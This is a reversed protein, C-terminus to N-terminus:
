PQGDSPGSGVIGSGCGSSIFGSSGARGRAWGKSGSGSSRRGGASGSSGSRASPRQASCDLSPQAAGPRASLLACVPAGAGAQRRFVHHAFTHRIDGSHPAVWCSRPIAPLLHTSAELPQSNRSATPSCALFRRDVLSGGPLKGAEPGPGLTLWGGSSLVPVFSHCWDWCLESSEGDLRRRKGCPGDCVPELRVFNRRDACGQCLFWSAAPGSCCEQCTYRSYPEVNCGCCSCHHSVSM